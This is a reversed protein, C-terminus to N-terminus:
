AISVRKMGQPDAVGTSPETSSFLGVRENLSEAIIRENLFRLSDIPLL